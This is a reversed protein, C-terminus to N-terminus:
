FGDGGVNKCFSEVKIVKIVIEKGGPLTATITDGAKTGLLAGGVPSEISIWGQEPKANGPDVLTCYHEKGSIKYTVGSHIQAKLKM